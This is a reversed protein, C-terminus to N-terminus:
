VAKVHNKPKQAAKRIIVRQMALKEHMITRASEQSMELKHAIERLSVLGNKAVIEKVKEVNDDTVSTSPRGSRPMDEVIDRGEKFSIYWEYTRTQSLASVGFAKQLM